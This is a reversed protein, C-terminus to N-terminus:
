RNEARWKQTKALDEEFQDMSVWEVHADAYLVNTGKNDNIEPKEYATVLSSPASTPLPMYVYHPKDIKKGKAAPSELMEKSITGAEVLDDLSAPSQDNHEAQYLVIGKGIGNLNAMSVATKAEQQAKVMANVFRTVLPTEGPAKTLTVTSGDRTAKFIGAMVGEEDNVDKLFDGATDEDNFVAVMTGEGKGTPDLSMMVEKPATSDEADLLTMTGWVPRSTDVKTLLPPLIENTTQGIGAIFEPTLMPGMGVMMVGKDLDGAENGHVVMIMEDIMYRGNGEEAAVPAAMDNDGFANFITQLSQPKMSGRLVGFVIPMQMDPDMAVYVDVSDIKNLEAAFPDMKIESAIQKNQSFGEIIQPAIAKVDIHLIGNAKAPAMSMAQKVAANEARAGAPLLLPSWLLAILCATCVTRKM